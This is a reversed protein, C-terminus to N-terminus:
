PMASNFYIWLTAGLVLLIFLMFPALRLLCGM